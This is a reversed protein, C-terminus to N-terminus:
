IKSKVDMSESRKGRHRVRPTQRANVDVTDDILVQILLKVREISRVLGIADVRNDPSLGQVVARRQQLRFSCLWFLAVKHPEQAHEGPLKVEAM